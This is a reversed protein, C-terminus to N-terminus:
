TTLYSVTPPLVLGFCLEIIFILSFFVLLALPLYCYLPVSFIFCLANSLLRINSWICRYLCCLVELFFNVYIVVFVVFLIVIYFHTYTNYKHIIISRLMTQFYYFFCFYLSKFIFVERVLM